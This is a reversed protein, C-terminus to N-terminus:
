RGEALSIKSCFILDTIDLERIFFGPSFFLENSISSSEYLKSLNKDWANQLFDKEIQLKGIIKHLQDIQKEPSADKKQGFVNAGQDLVIRKWEHISTKAVGYKSIIEAITLDVKIAEMAVKFKFEKSFTKQM